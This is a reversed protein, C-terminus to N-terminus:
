PQNALWKTRDPRSSESFGGREHQRFTNGASTFRMAGYFQDSKGCYVIFYM